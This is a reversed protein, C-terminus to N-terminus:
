VRRLADVVNLNMSSLAPLLGAAVGVILAVVLGEGVTAPSLYFFPLMGHTPDGGLTLLKAGALGLAGGLAAIVLSEALVLTLVFIDSFGVAKLVALDRVRERVAIAM